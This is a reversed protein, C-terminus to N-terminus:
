PVISVSPFSANLSSGVLLMHTNASACTPLCAQTKLHALYAANQIKYRPKGFPTKLILAQAPPSISVPSVLM